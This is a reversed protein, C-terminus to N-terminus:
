ASAETADGDIEPGTAPPITSSQDQRARAAAINDATRRRLQEALTPPKAGMARPEPNLRVVRGCKMAEVRSKVKDAIWSIADALEEGPDLWLVHAAQIQGLVFAADDEVQPLVKGALWARLSRDTRGTMAKLKDLGERFLATRANPRDVELPPQDVPKVQAAASQAAAERLSATDRAESNKGRAEQPKLNNNDEPNVGKGELDKVDSSKRQADPDRNSPSMESNDGPKGVTKQGKLAPNGGKRGRERAEERASHENVMRRCYITGDDTRSFVGEAELEALLNNVSVARKGIHKSLREVTVPKGNLLLHGYPRSTAMVCLMRMWLGQAALSMVRLAPDNDYDQWWFKSWPMADTHRSM